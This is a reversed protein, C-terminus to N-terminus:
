REGKLRNLAVNARVETLEESSLVRDILVLTNQVCSKPKNELRHLAENFREAEYRRMFWIASDKRLFPVVKLKKAKLGM